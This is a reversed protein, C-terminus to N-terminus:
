LLHSPIPIGQAKMRQFIDRLSSPGQPPPPPPTAPRKPLAHAEPPRHLVFRKAVQRKVRLIRNLRGARDARLVPLLGLVAFLKDELRRAISSLLLYEGNLNQIHIAKRQKEKGLLGLSHLYVFIRKVTRSCLGTKEAVLAPTLHTYEDNSVPFVLQGTAIDYHKVLFILVKRINTTYDSRIGRQRTPSSFVGQTILLPLKATLSRVCTNISQPLNNSNNM